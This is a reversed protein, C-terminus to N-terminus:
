HKPTYLHCAFRSFDCLYYMIWNIVYLVNLIKSSSPFVYAASSQHFQFSINTIGLNSLKLKKKWFNM